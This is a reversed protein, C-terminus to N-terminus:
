SDSENNAILLIVRIQLIKNDISIHFIRWRRRYKPHNKKRKFRFVKFKHFRYISKIRQLEKEYSIQIDNYKQRRFINSYNIM